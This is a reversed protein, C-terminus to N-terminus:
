FKAEQPPEPLEVLEFAQRPMVTLEATEGGATLSLRVSVVLLDAAVGLLQDTVSVLENPQWIRGAATKWGHVTYNISLSRGATVNRQWIARARAGNRDTEEEATVITPRHRKVVPDAVTASVDNDGEGWGEPSSQQSKVTIRSFREAHSNTASCRAINVGLQLAATVRQGPRTILLSGRGDSVLLVGRVRAASELAEYVTDGEDTKLTQFPRKDGVQDAVEVGFPACLDSAVQALTRGQFQVGQAACDVLDGTRDRGTVRITHTEADYSQAVTDVYGTIVTQGDVALTCPVGPAIVRARDNRGPEDTLTLSFQGAIQEIGRQIEIEQWGRYISGALSLTVDTDRM